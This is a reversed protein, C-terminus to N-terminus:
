HNKLTLSLFQNQQRNWPVPKGSNDNLPRPPFDNTLFVSSYHNRNYLLNLTELGLDIKSITCSPLQLGSARHGGEKVGGGEGLNPEPRTHMAKTSAASSITFSPLLDTFHDTSCLCMLYFYYFQLPLITSVSTPLLELIWSSFCSCSFYFFRVFPQFITLWGCPPDAGPALEEGGSLARGPRWLGWSSCVLTLGLLLEKIRARSPISSM